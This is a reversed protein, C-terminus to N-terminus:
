NIKHTCCFFNEILFFFCVISLFSFCFLFRNTHFNLMAITPQGNRNFCKELIVIKWSERVSRDWIMQAQNLRQNKNLHSDVHLLETSSGVLSFSRFLIRGRMWVCVCWFTIVIFCLFLCNAFRFFFDISCNDFKM